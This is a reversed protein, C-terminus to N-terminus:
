NQPLADIVGFVHSLDYSNAPATGVQHCSFCHSGGVFTEMTSNVLSLSGRLLSDSYGTEQPIVGGSTWIGGIQLYNARIDGLASLQPLVTTNTSLLLTNNTISAAATDPPSGWPYQQITNSAEIQPCNNAGNTQALVLNGTTADLEACEVNTNQDSGGTEIFIWDGSSNFDVTKTSGDTATYSYTAAPTNSAHEFTAWVMEPHGNVTAVIHVGVMALEKIETNPNLTWVTNDANPTYSPVEASVTIFQSPDAVANVDVWSTKLEMVLAQPDAFTTGNFATAYVEVKMLDASTNPYNVLQLIEPDENVIGTRFYAYVDNSHIGYYVLSGPKGPFQSLLVGASGAQAVEGIDQQKNVRVAFRLPKTPDNPIFQRKGDVEPSITFFSPGTLVYGAGEPSSIWLFM